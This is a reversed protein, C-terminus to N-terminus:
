KFSAAIQAAGFAEAARAKAVVAGMGYFEHTTGTYLQYTVVNGATKLADRYAVGDSVLPDEEAAIITTPPLGKLNAKIPAVDPNDADNPNMVYQKFFYQLFSTYLPLVSNTYLMDSAQRVDSTTVPYILLEHKPMPLEGNRAAISVETALNGGASEGAVALETPIGNYARINNSVWRYSDIADEYAAPFPAEPAKRYEVSVVIAKAQMCLSRASEDYTDITAIVFGGGHYYVIVPFPGDGVPYYIRIPIMTGNEGPIKMGDVVKGLQTPRPAKGSSRAIMKAADQPAFQQRADQPNLQDLQLGRISDYLVVVSRMDPDLKALLQESTLPATPTPAQAQALPAFLALTSTALAFLANKCNTSQMIM